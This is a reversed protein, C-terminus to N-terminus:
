LENKLADSIYTDRGKIHNFVKMIRQHFAASHDYGEESKGEELAACMRKGYCLPGPAPEGLEKKPMGELIEDMKNWFKLRLDQFENMFAKLEELTNEPPQNVLLSVLDTDIEAIHDETDVLAHLDFFIGLHRDVGAKRLAPLIEIGMSGAWLEVALVLVVGVTSSERLTTDITWQHLKLVESLWAKPISLEDLMQGWLDIHATGGILHREIGFDEAHDLEEKSLRGNEERIHDSLNDRVDDCCKLTAITLGLYSRFDRAFCYVQQAFFKVAAEHDPYEAQSLKRMLPHKYIPHQMFEAILASSWEHAEETSIGPGANSTLVYHKSKPCNGEEAFGVSLLAIFLIYNAIM